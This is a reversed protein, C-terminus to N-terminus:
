GFDSEVTLDDSVAPECVHVHGPREITRQTVRAFFTHTGPNDVILVWHGTQDTKAKGILAPRQRAVGKMPPMPNRDFVKVTRHRECSPLSSGIHGYFCDKLETPDDCRSPGSSPNAADYFHITVTSPFTAEHAAAPGVGLAVASTAVALAALRGIRLELGRGTM